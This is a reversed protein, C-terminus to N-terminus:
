RAAASWTPSSARKPRSERGGPSPPAQHHGALPGATGHGTPGRNRFAERPTAPRCGQPGGGGGQRRPKSRPRGRGRRRPPGPGDARGGQGRRQSSGRGVAAGAAPRATPDAPSTRGARPGAESTRGETERTKSGPPGAIEDIKRRLGEQQKRLADLDKDAEGLKRVLRALEQRRNNALIDLVEQLNQLIRQQDAPALGLGNDRIKGGATSMDAAIALRRAEAVADTLTGAALPESQGLAAATQEM